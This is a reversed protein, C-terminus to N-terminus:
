QWSWLWSVCFSPCFYFIQGRYAKPITGQNLFGHDNALGWQLHPLLYGSFIASKWPSMAKVKSRDYQMGDHMVWRGRGVYWLGTKRGHPDSMRCLPTSPKGLTSCRVDGFSQPPKKYPAYLGSSHSQISELPIVSVLCGVCPDSPLSNRNVKIVASHVYGFRGM